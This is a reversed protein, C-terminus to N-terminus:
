GEPQLPGEESNQDSFPTKVRCKGDFCINIQKTFVDSPKMETCIEISAHARRLTEMLDALGNGTGWTTFGREGLNELVYPPFPIGSDFIKILVCDNEDRAILLLIMKDTVRSVAHMANRLLDGLMRTIEGDGVDLRKMDKDIETSVFVNLEIDQDSCELIKTRLLLDTLDIGTTDFFEASMDMGGLEKGYDHCVEALKRKMREDQGAEMNSVYNAIMPLIEKARHLKQGMQKNDAAYISQIKAMKNHDLLWLVTFLVALYMCVASIDAFGSNDTASAVRLLQESFLIIVTAAFVINLMWEKKMKIILRRQRYIIYIVAVRIACSIIYMCLTDAMEAFALLAGIICGFIINLVFSVGYAVIAYKLNQLNSNNNKTYKGYLVLLTCIILPSLYEVLIFSGTIYKAAGIAIVFPWKLLGGSEELLFEFLLICLYANILFTIIEMM